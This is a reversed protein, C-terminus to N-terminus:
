RMENGSDGAFPLIVEDRRHPLCQLLLLRDRFIALLFYAVTCSAIGRAGKELPFLFPTSDLQFVFSLAATEFKLPVFAADCQFLFQSGV